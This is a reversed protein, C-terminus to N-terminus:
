EGISDLWLRAATDAEQRELHTKNLSLVARLHGIAIKRSAQLAAGTRVGVLFMKRYEAAEKELWEIHSIAAECVGEPDKILRLDALLNFADPAHRYDKTM